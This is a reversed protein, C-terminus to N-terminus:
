YPEGALLFGKNGSRAASQEWGGRGSRLHQYRDGSRAQQAVGRRGGDVQRQREAQGAHQHHRLHPPQAQNLPGLKCCACVVCAQVNSRGPGPSNKEHHWETKIPPASRGQGRAKSRQLGGPQKARSRPGGALQAHRCAHQLCALRPAAPSRQLTAHVLRHLACFPMGPRQMGPRQIAARIACRLWCRSCGVRTCRSCLAGGCATNAAPELSVM